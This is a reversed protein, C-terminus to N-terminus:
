FHRILFRSLFYVRKYVIYYQLASSNVYAGSYVVYNLRFIIYVCYVSQNM